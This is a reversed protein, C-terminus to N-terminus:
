YKKGIVVPLDTTNLNGLNFNGVVVGKISDITVPLPDVNKNNSGKTLLTNSNKKIVKHGVWDGQADEYVIIMGKQISSFAIEKVLLLSEESYHPLMSSGSGRFVKVGDLYQSAKSIQSISNEIESAGEININFLLIAGLLLGLPAKFLKATAGKLM